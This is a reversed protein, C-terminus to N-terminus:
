GCVPPRTESLHDLVIVPVLSWLFAGAALKRVVAPVFLVNNSKRRIGFKGRRDPASRLLRRASQSVPEPSPNHGSLSILPPRTSHSPGAAAVVAVAWLIEIM